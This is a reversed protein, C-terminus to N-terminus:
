LHPHIPTDLELPYFLNSFSVLAMDLSNTVDESNIFFLTIRANHKGVFVEISHTIIIVVGKRRNERWEVHLPLVKVLQIELIRKHM